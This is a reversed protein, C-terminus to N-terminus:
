VVYVNNALLKSWNRTRNNTLAEFYILGALRGFEHVFFHRSYLQKVAYPSPSDCYETEHYIECVGDDGSGDTHASISLRPRKQLVPMTPVSEESDSM